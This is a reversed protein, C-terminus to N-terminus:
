AGRERTILNEASASDPLNRTNVKPRRPLYCLLLHVGKIPQVKRKKRKKKEAITVITLFSPPLSPSYYVTGRM